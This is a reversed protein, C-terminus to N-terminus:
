GARQMARYVTSRAVSFLEALESSTDSGARDLAVLHAEQSASLKPQKGRLRGRTRAVKMGERIRMKIQRRTKRSVRRDANMTPPRDNAPDGTPSAHGFARLCARECGAARRVSGLAVSVFSLLRASLEDDRPAHHPISALAVAAMAAAKDALRRGRAPHRLARHPPPDRAATRRGPRPTADDRALPRDLQQQRPMPVDGRDM